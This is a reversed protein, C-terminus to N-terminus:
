PVIGACAYSLYRDSPWLSVRRYKEIMCRPGSRLVLISIRVGLSFLLDIYIDISRCPM